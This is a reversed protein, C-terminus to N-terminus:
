RVRAELRQLQSEWGMVARKTWEEDHMAQFRLVMRVGEREPVLEVLTAVDYPEVGPIFDAMHVYALRRPPTVETFVIRAETALPMGARKMYAIQPAGTATMTYRLEGGPRLDLQKVEVAFGEPGWWSEFGRRTTWLEWIEELSAQYVREMEIEKRTM